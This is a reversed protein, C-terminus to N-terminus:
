IRFREVSRRLDGAVGDLQGAALVGRDAQLVTEDALSSLKHAHSSIETDAQRQAELAAAIDDVVEAAQIAAERAGSLVDTVSRVHAKSTDLVSVGTQIGTEVAESEQSLKQTVRDIERAAVASKEALKRVEDAVVAFGRGQEDARAAEIAANWALLNTQEAIDQVSRTMGSIALTSSAFREPLTGISLITSRL